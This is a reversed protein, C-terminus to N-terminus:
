DYSVRYTYVTKGIQVEDEDALEHIKYPIIKEQNIYTGNKAGLDKLGYTDSLKIFEIHMRSVGIGKEVFNTGKETRGIVFNDADLEIREETGERDVLLFNEAKRINPESVMESEDLLMTEDYVQENPQDTIANSNITSNITSASEQQYLELDTKTQQNNDQKTQEASQTVYSKSGTETKREEIQKPKNQKKKVKVEKETIIPEVGPRWVFWYVLVGGVVALSLVTSTILMLLSSSGEYLKWVGALLLVGILVSYIKMKRELPPLSRVKKVKYEEQHNSDEERGNEESVDDQQKDQLQSLLQKIGQLSFGPDKIYNLIMKFQKGNLGQVESALNLLLKKLSEYVSTSDNIQKIPLYTLYVDHFGNGVYIYEENLAFHQDTLMNNNSDQLAQIINIFLAYYEQMSLPHEKTLPRLQRLGEIKYFVTIRNNVDEFSMPLLRPINNSQIMKLQLEQFDGQKFGEDQRKQLKLYAGNSEVYEILFDDLQTSM